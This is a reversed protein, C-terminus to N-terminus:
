KESEDLIPVEEALDLFLKEDKIKRFFIAFSLIVIIISALVFFYNILPYKVIKEAFSIIKEPVEYGSRYNLDLTKIEKELEDGALSSSSSSANENVAKNEKNEKVEKIEPEKTEKPSETITNDKDEQKKITVKSDLQLFSSFM